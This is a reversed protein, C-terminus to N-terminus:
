SRDGMWVRTLRYELNAPGFSRRRNDPRPIVAIKGGRPLRAFHAGGLHQNWGTMSQADSLAESAGITLTYEGPEMDAKIRFRTVWADGANARVPEVEANLANVAFVLAGVRDYIALGNNVPGVDRKALSRVAIEIWAGREVVQTVLGDDRQYCIGTIEVSGDGALDTTDPLQWPLRQVQEIEAVLAPDLPGDTVSPNAMPATAAREDAVARGVLSYYAALGQRTDGSFLMQGKNLVIVRDCLMEVAATDHSVFLMTVGRELMERARRMCKQQFFVDGVSLAEDVIFVEPEFCAFMSFVLRVMMGSSYMRVPRDFFEGLEAFTEIETLKAAGYGAPFGLLEAGQLVNQRGTLEHNVGTGLELLSLVRGHTEFTGTSAHLAGSLIKLLTSKGSGNPGLIGVCEGKRVGFNIDRVAWFDSHRVRRGLSLWEAVRHWPNAYLKFRKGLAVASVITQGGGDATAPTGSTSSVNPAQAFAAPTSHSATTM